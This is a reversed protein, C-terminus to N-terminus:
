PRPSPDPGPGPGSFLDDVMMSWARASPASGGSSASNPDPNVAISDTFGAGISPYDAYAGEYDPDGPNVLTTIRPGSGGPSHRGLKHQGWLWNALAQQSETTGDDGPNGGIDRMWRPATGRHAPEFHSWDMMGGDGVNGFSSTFNGSSDRHFMSGTGIPHTGSRLILSSDFTGDANKSRSETSFSGDHSRTTVSTRSNGDTSQSREYTANNGNKDVATWSWTKTVVGDEKLVTAPTPTTGDYSAIGGFGWGSPPVSDPLGDNRSGGYNGVGSLDDPDPFQGFVSDNDGGSLGFDLKSGGPFGVIQEPIAFDDPPVAQFIERFEELQQFVAHDGVQLGHLANDIQSVSVNATNDGVNASYEGIPITSVEAPLWPMSSLMQRSELGEFTLSKGQRQSKRNKTARLFRAMRGQRNKLQRNM